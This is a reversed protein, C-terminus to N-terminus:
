GGNERPEFGRAVKGRLRYLCELARTISLSAAEDGQVQLMPRPELQDIAVGVGDVYAITRCACARGHLEAAFKRWSEEDFPLPSPEDLPHQTPAAPVPCGSTLAGLFSLLGRLPRM